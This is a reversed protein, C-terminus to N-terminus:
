KKETGTKKSSKSEKSEGSSGSRAFEKEKRAEKKYSESRYDTQYFGNGKFIIGAGASILRRLKRKGCHPCLRLPKETINQFEEFYYDCNDCKYEYTPM